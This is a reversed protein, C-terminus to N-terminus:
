EMVLAVRGIAKRDILLRMAAAYDEFPVRHSVNPRLKGQEAFELLAAMRREGLAPDKRVAEGARVGLVSAGKMLILNTRALGIGGTFGIVLLRAGWAICRVSNEFVEGGVPDFVVDVGRGDTIRKVADRFPERAYLVLHDAGRARAVALKEESSAAAIVTAGLLKGLEVAALGVGGGAGHVLLMEGHKLQARDVLAHHATGHGALYTAGEAYDFTSPLPTLQSAAVMAEEAYAGFRMKVIVKDGVVRDSVAAGTETVDGAAEVGPTFPLEPKLQYEGAAMLIDPFNIGAARIKVRVEGQGLARPPLEELRLKEPPGLERCVIARPM